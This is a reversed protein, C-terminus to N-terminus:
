SPEWSAALLSKLAAHPADPELNLLQSPESWFVIGHIAEGSGDVAPFPLIALAAELEAVSLEGRQAAKATEEIDAFWRIASRALGTSVLYLPQAVTLPFRRGVRDASPVVIGAMPGNLASGLLFHLAIHDAWVDCVLLPVLHRAVWRDWGRIFDAPLGRSVFDGATPIKGYFGPAILDSASV